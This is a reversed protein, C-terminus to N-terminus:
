GGIATMSRNKSFITRAEKNSFDTIGATREKKSLVAKEIVPRIDEGRRLTSLLDEEESSFLCNKIKGDATLRLRNCTDCFPNTLTSIIGFQASTGNISYHRTTDNPTGPIKIINQSGYKKSVEELITNHSIKKSWDWENGDFPMFEIFRVPIATKESLSIFDNIEDENVGKMLVVNIKVNFNKNSTSLINKYVRDFENRRTIQKFKEPNLTDLSINIQQLNVRKFYDWFRDLLIGNTTIALSVPHKSLSNLISRINKKILPEGGTLRIKNVGNKIFVQAIELLEEESMFHSKDRLPIGEAPM